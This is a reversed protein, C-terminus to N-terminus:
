VRARDGRYMDGPMYAHRTNCSRCVLAMDGDRYHQLTVVYRQDEVGLWVMVESCDACVPGASTNIDSLMELLETETPVRKGHRKANARMQGFRYHMACLHQRGQFRAAPYDCRACTPM